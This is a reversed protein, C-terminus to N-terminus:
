EKEGRTQPIMRYVEQLARKYGMAQAVRLEWNPKSLDHQDLDALRGMEALIRRMNRFQLDSAFLARKLEERGKRDDAPIERLWLEQIDAGPRVLSDIDDGTNLDSQPFKLKMM